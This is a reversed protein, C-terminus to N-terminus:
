EERIARSTRFRDLRYNNQCPPSYIAQKVALKRFFPTSRSGFSFKNLFFIFFFPILVWSFLMVRDYYPYGSFLFGFGNAFWYFRFFEIEMKSFFLGFIGRAFYIALPILSFIFFLIKFGTVYDVTEVLDPVSSFVNLYEYNGFFDRIYYGFDLIYIVIFLLYILLTSRITRFFRLAFLPFIYFVFTPHFLSAFIVNTIKKCFDSNKNFNFFNVYFLYSFGLGQRLIFDSLSQYPPFIFISLAFLTFIVRKKIIPKSFLLLSFYFIYFAFFRFFEFSVGLLSFFYSIYYYGLSSFTPIDKEIYVFYYNELDGTYRSVSWNFFIISLILCLFVVNLYNLLRKKSFKMYAMDLIIGQDDMKPCRPKTMRHEIRANAATKEPYIAM